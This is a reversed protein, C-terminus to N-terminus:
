PGSWRAYRLLRSSVTQRRDSVKLSETGDLYLVVSDSPLDCSHIGDLVLLALSGSVVFKRPTSFKALRFGLDVSPGIYDVGDSGPIEVKRNSVPFGAIWGTAKLDLPIGKPKWQLEPFSSIASKFAWVHSAGEKHNAIAVSFLIEDGVFKWAQMAASPKHFGGPLREYAADVAQPFFRFFESFTSAWEPRKSPSNQAKFATSGVIDASCFLRLEWAWDGM